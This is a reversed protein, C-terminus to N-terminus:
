EGASRLGRREQRMRYLRETFGGNELFAADLAALQRDLLYCAQHTVCLLANAAVESSKGEFHSRYTEYSRNEAYALRRIEQARADNKDWIELKGNRLFDEYDKKLEELSGRAVSVLKLESKKSTGSVQSGEAINQKGSRASQWMQDHTRSRINIYRNCFFVTGDFVIESMKYSALDGYGGHPVILTPRAKRRAEGCKIGGVGKDGAKRVRVDADNAALRGVADVVAAPIPVEVALKGVLQATLGRVEPAQHALPKLLEREPGPIKAPEASKQCYSKNTMYSRHKGRLAEFVDLAQQRTNVICLVQAQEALSAAIEQTTREGIFVEQTRKLAVFLAPVDSVIERVDRLGSKFTESFEFAPQTATCLV